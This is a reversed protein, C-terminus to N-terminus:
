RSKKNLKANGIAKLLCVNYTPLYKSELVYLCHLENISKDRANDKM